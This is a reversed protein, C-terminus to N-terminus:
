NKREGYDFGGHITKYGDGRRGIHGNFDGGILLKENKPISQIVEDLDDWFLRKDDEDLGIQPAYLSVVNFIESGVVLKVYMIRDSKCRVEVVQEVLDKEVLIGVGNKARNLSSYWLKYWDIEKANAGAWKTEQICAISIKRRYL